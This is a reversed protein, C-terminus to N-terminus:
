KVWPNKLLQPVTFPYRKIPDTRDCVSAGSKLTMRNSKMRGIQISPGSGIWRFTMERDLWWQQILIWRCSWCRREGARCYRARACRRRWEKEEALPARPPFAVPQRLPYVGESIRQPLLRDWVTLERIQLGPTRKRRPVRWCRLGLPGRRNGNGPSSWGDGSSGVDIRSTSCSTWDFAFRIPPSVGHITAIVRGAM